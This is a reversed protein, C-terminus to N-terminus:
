MLPSLLLDILKIGIFPAIVGGIGYILLNRSLLRDAPEARYMVGKLALPILAIIILANFIVAALIASTPSHLRMVNLAGLQPYTVVFAAPIIAFYKAIDNAVSFTTLAGRTMIMQKGVQVVQLLKTPNSDLDVMNGAEKAAQTGSNMAVAVDAQALAPADNTGDGTMAVLHGEAQHERILRLKDEPTAEALYDDVGAEAAIAAATLRNDGTVMVTKIGMKRLDAFREAIGGKVVDKLEIVGLVSKDDSVVLPTSGRRAVEDVSAQVEAPFVGGLARVHAKIADSAGKRIQRSGINIGSMRTRASFAVPEAGQLDRGRINFRQKALVVISRGEPTEDALSALQAADALAIEQVGPAAVFATAERNGLTITGTKDLLLVDVDGAAEIARGSMALVNARMMRSMGAIGVASLLAGITTPILCVLLAILVTVSVVAGAGNLAISFTSYPLLTVCVLLFILTLAVLLITLAIENPTKGRKAGEVMAIMRDLFAEGPNATVRVIIWDSLVTTGGTVSSFDGGAERIVPASEGTIASEDVSAVGEIIEGDAPITDGAEVLVVMGARLEDSACQYSFADRNPASLVEAFVRRRAARLADAQAKGRGEALAEAVNAFLVTFWLWLAVALIFGAPADPRGGRLADIWLLTTIISGIYVVFMVPNKWQVQPALKRIVEGAVWQWSMTATAPKVVPANVVNQLM